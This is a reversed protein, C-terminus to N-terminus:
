FDSIIIGSLIWIMFLIIIWWAGGDNGFVGNNGTAAAVDALSYGENFM